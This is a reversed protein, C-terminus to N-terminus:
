IRRRVMLRKLKTAIRKVMWVFWPGRTARNSVVTLSTASKYHSMFYARGKSVVCNGKHNPNSVVANGLIVKQWEVKDRLSMWKENAKESHCIVLSTGKDDDLEPCVKEIGWFDAITFDAGSRGERSACAYCSGRLCLGTLFAAIFSNDYLPVEDESGDGFVSVLVPNNWSQKKDKFVINELVKGSRVEEERKFKEFVEPAPVGHCIVEVTLLNDHTRGLFAHLGAIQCPTGSFLVARGKELEAKAESLTGRLDSQVYKSGRMAALEDLTEAKTHIAKVTGKELVCGFVVGGKALVTKALETFIGGSSSALRLALDKTRAAYATPNEDPRGPHFVPCIKGCLGCSICKAADIRPHLFGHEDPRMEIADKPCVAFCASCGSCLNKAALEIM